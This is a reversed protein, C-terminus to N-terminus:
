PIYFAPAPQDTGLGFQYAVFGGTSSDLRYWTGTSPRFIAIDTKGDGDYDAPVPIDGASGFGSGSFSNDSRLIYWTGTSPRWIATDARGDGDFDGTVPKDETSGFQVAYFSNTSSFVRYWAGNSPRYLNIDAKGDGDYDAPIPVDGAQGFPYASFAGTASLTQYWLGTSPRFVAVDAKGDGDFDAPAPIDTSNGFSIGDYTNTSSMLRYWVGSRYVAADTMGDGDYDAAVIKDGQQGFQFGIFGSRSRALYWAGNSPRFVSIDAKSDGDFDFRCASTMTVCSGNSALYNGIETQSYSCFSIPTGGTLQANMLSNACNQTADVHNAGLKHGIEHATILYKGPAWSIYGSVGYASDASRCIVGIFAWGQSLAQSKGTFMHTTDRPTTAPPYNTNWYGQFSRTLEEPNIGVFPDGTSWTHQFVISVGLTLQDAYLGEVVNMIGLIEANALAPSGLTAVYEADAETAIELRKRTQVVQQASAGAIALGNEIKENLKSSCGFTQGNIADEIRYVVYEDAAAKPSYCSAPEVFYRESGLTFYGEARSDRINIRAESGAAGSVVGKFTTVAARDATTEGNAGTDVAWYGNSRLDHPELSIEVPKGGRAFTLLHRGNPLKSDAISVVDVNTFFATLDRRVSDTQGFASAAVLSLLTAIFASGFTLRSLMTLNGGNFLQYSSTHPTIRDFFARIKYVNLM